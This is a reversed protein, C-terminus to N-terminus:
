GSFSLIGMFVGRDGSDEATNGGQADAGQRQGCATGVGGSVSRFFGAVDIPGADFWGILDGKRGVM